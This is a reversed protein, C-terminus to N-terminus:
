FKAFQRMENPQIEFFAKLLTSFQTHVHVNFYKLNPQHNKKAECLFLKPHFSQFRLTEKMRHPQFSEMSCFVNKIAESIPLTHKLHLRLRTCQSIEPKRVYACNIKIKGMCSPLDKRVIISLDDAFNGTKWM